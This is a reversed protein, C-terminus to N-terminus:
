SAAQWEVGRGGDRVGPWLRAHHGVRGGPHREELTPTKRPPPVTAAEVVTAKIDHASM